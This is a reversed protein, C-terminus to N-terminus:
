SQLWPLIKQYLGTEKLFSLVDDMLVNEFLDKITNAHFYHKRTNNFVKCELLFHKITCCKKIHFYLARKKIVRFSLLQSNSHCLCLHLFLVCASPPSSYQGYKYGLMTEMAERGPTVAEERSAGLDAEARIQSNEESVVSLCVSREIQAYKYIFLKM